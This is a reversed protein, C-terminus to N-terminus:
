IYILIPRGTKVLMTCYLWIFSVLLTNNAMLVSYVVTHNKCFADKMYNIFHFLNKKVAKFNFSRSKFIVNNIEAFGCAATCM